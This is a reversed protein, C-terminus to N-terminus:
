YDRCILSSLRKVLSYLSHIVINFMFIADSIYVTVKLCPVAKGRIYCKESAYCAVKNKSQLFYNGSNKQDEINLLSYFIEMIGSM